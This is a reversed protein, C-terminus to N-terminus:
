HERAGGFGSGSGPDDETRHRGFAGGPRHGPAHDPHHERHAFAARLDPEGVARIGHVAVSTLYTREDGGAATAHAGARPLPGLLRRGARLASDRHPMSSSVSETS